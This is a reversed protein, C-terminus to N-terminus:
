DHNQSNDEEPQGSNEMRDCVGNGDADVFRPCQAGAQGDSGQMLGMMGQMHEQMRGMMGQMRGPMERPNSDSDEEGFMQGMMGQMREQMRDMMGQMRGPAEPFEGGQLSDIMGQLREKQQALRDMQRQVRALRGELRDALRQLRTPRIEEAPATGPDPSSEPATDQEPVAPTEEAALPTHEAHPSPAQPNATDAALAFLPLALFLCLTLLLLSKKMTFDSGAYFEADM